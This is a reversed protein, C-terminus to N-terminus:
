RGAGAPARLESSRSGALPPNASWERAERAVSFLMRLARRAIATLAPLARNGNRALLAEFQSRFIGRRQVSRVAFLYAHKRLIPRGRKSIHRRGQVIGSSKEVLALGALAVVQRASDYARPDGISGLFIAASVSGVNPVTLLARGAPLDHVLRDMEGEVLRMQSEYVDVRELLMPIERSLAGQASPLAVTERARTILARMTARGCHHRSELELLQLLDRPRAALVSSPGPYARLVARATRRTPAPFVSVFEPFVVELLARLRTMAGRRLVSLKERAGVLHRLESFETALVPFTVFHGQAALDCIGIADKADTKLPQRHSVEKWRRTHAPLVSVVRFRDGAQCLFHAFTFGYSGAFEIAVLLETEEGSAVSSIYALAERFGDRTTPFTLPASDAGGRPRVVLAHHFKGADVGVVASARQALARKEFANM